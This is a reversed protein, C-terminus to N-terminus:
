RPRWSGEQDRPSGGVLVVPKQGGAVPIALIDVDDKGAERAAATFVLWRGDPSWRPYWSQGEALVTRRGTGDANVVVLASAKGDDSYFALSRGDPSFVPSGHYVDEEGAAKPLRREGKGESDAIVLRAGNEGEKRSYVISKGDPSWTGGGSTELSAAVLRREGTGDANMVYLHPARKEEGKEKRWSTFLITKGDPSWAPLYDPEADETLQVQESGDAKMTWVDLNGQRNSQFAIRSGDPSWVPWNDGAPNRTLNKAEKEGARLLYVESNGSRGSAFLLDAAEPKWAEAAPLPMTSVAFVLAASALVIRM